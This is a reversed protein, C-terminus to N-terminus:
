WCVTWLSPLVWLVTATVTGHLFSRAHWEDIELNNAVNALEDAYIESVAKPSKLYDAPLVVCEDGSFEREQSTKAGTAM